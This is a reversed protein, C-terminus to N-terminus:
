VAGAGALACNELSEFVEDVSETDDQTSHDGIDDIPKADAIPRLAVIRSLWALLARDSQSSAAAKHQLAFRGHSRDSGHSASQYSASAVTM